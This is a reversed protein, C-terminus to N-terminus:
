WDTSQRLDHIVSSWANRLVLRACAVALLSGKQDMVSMTCRMKPRVVPLFVARPASGRAFWGLVSLSYRQDMGAIIFRVM